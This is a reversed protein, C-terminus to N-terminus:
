LKSHTHELAIPFVAVGSSSRDFYFVFLSAFLAPVSLALWATFWSQM